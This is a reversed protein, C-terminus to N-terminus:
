QTDHSFLMHQANITSGTKRRLPSMHVNYSYACRRRAFFNGCPLSVTATTPVDKINREKEIETMNVSDVPVRSQQAAQAQVRPQKTKRSSPSKTITKFLHATVM